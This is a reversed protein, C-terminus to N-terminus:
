LVIIRKSNAIMYGFEFTTGQGVIGGPNCVIIADVNRFKERFEVNNDEKISNIFSNMFAEATVYLVNKNSFLLKNYFYLM